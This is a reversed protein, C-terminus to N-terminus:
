WIIVFSGNLFLPLSSYLSAVQQSRRQKDLQNVVLGEISAGVGHNGLFHATDINVGDIRSDYVYSCSLGFCLVFPV